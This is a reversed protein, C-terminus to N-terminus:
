IEGFGVLGAVVLGAAVLAAVETARSKAAGAGDRDSMAPHHLPAGRPTPRYSQLARPSPRRFPGRGSSTFSTPRRGRRARKSFVERGMGVGRM